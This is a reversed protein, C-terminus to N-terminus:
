AEVTEAQESPQNVGAVKAAKAALKDAKERAKQARAEAKAANEQLKAIKEPDSQRVKIEGPPAFGDFNVEMTEPAEVGEAFLSKNFYISGRLGPIGYAAGGDPFRRRMQLTAM